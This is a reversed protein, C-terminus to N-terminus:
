PCFARYARLPVIQVELMGAQALPLSDVFGRAQELSDAELLMVAGPIDDRGWIVRVAGEAYLERVRAAEADLRREFEEPAFQETRRRSISVFQM